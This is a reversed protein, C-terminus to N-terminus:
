RPTIMAVRKHQIEILIFESPKASVLSAWTQSDNHVPNTTASTYQIKQEGAENPYYTLISNEIPDPGNEKMTTEIAQGIPQKELILQKLLNKTTEDTHDASVSGNWGIYAHAGKEIFANAMGPYELGYCGMMIVTTDNFNGRMAKKVFNATIAFYSTEEHNPFIARGIYSSLQDDTYKSDSYTESTFFSIASMEFSIAAHVRLIVIKYNYAPLNKYYNVTVNEGPIYDVAYGANKLMNTATQVFTQNPYTLSLQDVIVASLGSSPNIPPNETQDPSYYVWLLSVAIFLAFFV